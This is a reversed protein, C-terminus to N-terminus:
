RWWGAVGCEGCEDGAFVAGGCQELRNLGAGNFGGVNRSGLDLSERVVLAGFKDREGAGGEGRDNRGRAGFDRGRDLGGEGGGADGRAPVRNVLATAEDAM